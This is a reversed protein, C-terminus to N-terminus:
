FRYSLNVSAAGVTKINQDEWINKEDTYRIGLSGVITISLADIPTFMVGNNILFRLIFTDINDSIYIDNQYDYYGDDFYGTGVQISPGMVYRVKGQGTPYFNLTVGTYFTNHVDDFGSINEYDGYGVAFPIQVGIKGNSFLREYSIKFNNVVLDLLHYNIFNKKFNIRSIARSEREFFQTKGDQFLIMSIDSNDIASVKGSEDGYLSYTTHSAQVEINTAPVRKKGSRMYIYDQAYITSLGTLLVLTLLIHKKM